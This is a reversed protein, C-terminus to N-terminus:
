KLSYSERSLAEAIDQLGSTIAATAFDIACVNLYAGVLEPNSKAYGEGFEKDLIRIASRLYSNATEPAQQLLSNASVTIKDMM